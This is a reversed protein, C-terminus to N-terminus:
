IITEKPSQGILVKLDEESIEIMTRGRFHIQYNEKHTIISLFPIIPKFPLEPEFVDNKKLHVRHPYLEKSNHIPFLYSHDEYPKSIIEFIGGIASNKCKVGRGESVLYFVCLDGPTTKRLVRKNHDSVGWVLKEKVVNFNDRRLICIWNM